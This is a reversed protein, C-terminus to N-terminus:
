NDWIGVDYKQRIYDKWAGYSGTVKLLLLFFFYGTLLGIILLGTFRLWRIVRM